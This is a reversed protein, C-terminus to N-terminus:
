KVFQYGRGQATMCRIVEGDRELGCKGQSVSLCEGLAREIDQGTAGAKTFNDVKVTADPCRVFAWWAVFLLLVLSLLVGVGVEPDLGIHQCLGAWWHPTVDITKIDVRNSHIEVKGTKRKYGFGKVTWNLIQGKYVGDIDREFIGQYNSRIRAREVGNLLIIIKAGRVLRGNSVVCGLVQLAERELEIDSLTSDDESLDHAGEAKRYGKKEVSFKVKAFYQPTFPVGGIDDQDFRFGGDDASRGDFVPIEAKDSRKILWLRVQADSLDRKEGHAGSRVKGRIIM